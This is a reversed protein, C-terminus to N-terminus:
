RVELNKTCFIRLVFAHRHLSAGIGIPLLIHLPDGPPKEEGVATHRMRYTQHAYSLLPPSPRRLKDHWEAAAYRAKSLLEPKSLDKLKCKDSDITSKLSNTGAASEMESSINAM